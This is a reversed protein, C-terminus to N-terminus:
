HHTGTITRSKRPEDIFDDSTMLVQKPTATIVKSHSATTKRQPPTSERKGMVNLKHTGHIM